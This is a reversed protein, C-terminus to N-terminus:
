NILMLMQFNEDRKAMTLTESEYMEAPQHFEFTHGIENGVNKLIVQLSLM